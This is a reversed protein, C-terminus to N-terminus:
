FVLDNAGDDHQARHTITWQPCDPWLVYVRVLCDHANRVEVRRAHTLPSQFGAVQYM